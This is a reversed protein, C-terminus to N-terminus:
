KLLAGEDIGLEGSPLDIRLLKIEEFNPEKNKQAAILGAYCFKNLGLGAATMDRIIVYRCHQFLLWNSSPPFCLNHIWCFIFWLVDHESLNSPFHCQFM